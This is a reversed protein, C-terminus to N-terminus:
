GFTGNIRPASSPGRKSCYRRRLRVKLLPFGRTNTVLRSLRNKKTNVATKAIISALFERLAALFIYNGSRLLVSSESRDGYPMRLISKLACLIYTQKESSEASLIVASSTPVICINVTIKNRKRGKCRPEALDYDQIKNNNRSDPDEIFRPPRFKNPTVKGTKKLQRRKPCKDVTRAPKPAPSIVM